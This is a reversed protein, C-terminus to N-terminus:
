TEREALNKATDKLTKYAYNDTVKNAIAFEKACNDSQM